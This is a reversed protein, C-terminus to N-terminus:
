QNIEDLRKKGESGESGPFYDIYNGIFFRHLHYNLKHEYSTSKLQKAFSKWTYYNGTNGNLGVM